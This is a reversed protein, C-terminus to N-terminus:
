VHARGIETFTAVDTSVATNSVEDGETVAAATQVPYIPVQVTKGQTPALAYNKVLGRMISRENAVFMAEQVITPLLDNLTVSTSGAM